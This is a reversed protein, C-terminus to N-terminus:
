IRGVRGDVSGEEVDDVCYHDSLVYAPHESADMPCDPFHTSWGGRLGEPSSRPAVFYWPNFPCTMSPVCFFAFWYHVQSLM